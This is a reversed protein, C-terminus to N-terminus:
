LGKAGLTGAASQEAHLLARASPVPVITLAKAAVRM